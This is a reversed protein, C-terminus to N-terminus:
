DCILEKSWEKITTSFDNEEPSITIRRREHDMMEIHIHVDPQIEDASLKDAWEIAVVGGSELADLFGIDDIDSVTDLRYLDVHILTLRGHYENILTFTPSTIYEDKSIGIGVALGQVFTTKGSGLDGSLAFVMGKKLSAGIVKGLSQTQESSRTILQM